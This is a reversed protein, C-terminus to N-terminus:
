LCQTSCEKWGRISSVQERFVIASLPSTSGSKPLLSAPSSDAWRHVLQGKAQDKIIRSNHHWAASSPHIWLNRLAASCCGFASEESRGSRESHRRGCFTM